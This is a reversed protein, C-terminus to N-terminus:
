ILNIENVEDEEIEDKDRSKKILIERLKNGKERNLLVKQHLM